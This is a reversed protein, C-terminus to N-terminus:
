PRQTIKPDMVLDAAMFPWTGQHCTLSELDMGSRVSKSVTRGLRRPLADPRDQSSPNIARSLDWDILMGDKIGTGTESGMLVINNPSLDGHLIGVKYAAQHATIHTQIRYM